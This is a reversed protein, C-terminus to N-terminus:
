STSTQTAATSPTNGVAPDFLRTDNATNTFTAPNAPYQVHNRVDQNQDLRVGWYQMVSCNSGQHCGACTWDPIGEIQVGNTQM